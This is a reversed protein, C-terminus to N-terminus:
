SRCTVKGAPSPPRTGAPGPSCPAPHSGEPLAALALPQQTVNTKAHVLLPPLKPQPNTSVCTALQSAISAGFTNEENSGNRCTPWLRSPYGDAWDANVLMLSDGQAGFALGWSPFSTPLTRASPCPLLPVTAEGCSRGAQRPPPSPSLM